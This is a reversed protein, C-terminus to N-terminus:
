RSSPTSMIDEWSISLDNSTILHSAEPSSQSPSGPLNDTSIQLQEDRRTRPGDIRPLKWTPWSWDPLVQSSINWDRHRVEAHSARIRPYASLLALLLLILIFPWSIWARSGRFIARKRRYDELYQQLTVDELQEGADADNGAYYVVQAKQLLTTSEGLSFDGSVLEQRVPYSRDFFPWMSIQVKATRRIPRPRPNDLEYTDKSWASLAPKSHDDLANYAALRDQQWAMVKNDLDDVDNRDAFQKSAKWVVDTVHEQRVEWLQGPQPFEIWFCSRTFALGNAIWGAEAVIKHLQQHVETLPLVRVDPELEGVFNIMPLLLDLIGITVRDVEQWFNTTFLESRLYKPVSSTRSMKRAFGTIM